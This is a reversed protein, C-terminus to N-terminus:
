ESYYFKASTGDKKHWIDDSDLFALFSAESFSIAHIEQLLQVMEM